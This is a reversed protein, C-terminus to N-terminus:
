TRNLRDIFTEVTLSKYQERFYFITEKLPISHGYKKLGETIKCFAAPNDLGLDKHLTSNLLEEDSLVTVYEDLDELVSRLESLKIKM